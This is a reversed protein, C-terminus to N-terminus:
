QNCFNGTGSKRWSLKGVPHWRSATRRRARDQRLRIAGAERVVGDPTVDYVWSMIIAIPFGIGLLVIVATDFWAPLNLPEEIATVVQILVWAVVVYAAVLRLVRRRKLEEFLSM